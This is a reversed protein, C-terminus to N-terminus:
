KGQSRAQPPTTAGISGVQADVSLKGAHAFKLTIPVTEGTKLPHKLGMLMLHYGGPGFTVSGGAPVEVAKVPRMKMVGNTMSMTHMEVRNAVPSAAGTLQDASDSTNHITLYGVGIKSGPPTARSWPEVVSIGSADQTQSQQAHASLPLGIAAIAGALVLARGHPRRM